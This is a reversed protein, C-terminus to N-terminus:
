SDYWLVNEIDTIVGNDYTIEAGEYGIYESWDVVTDRGVIIYPKYEEGEKYKEVGNKTYYIIIVKNRYMKAYDEKCYETPLKSWDDPTIIDNENYKNVYRYPEYKAREEESLGEWVDKMIIDREHTKNVYQYVDYSKQSYGGKLQNYAEVDIIISSDDKNVYVEEYLKKEDKTLTNWQKDTLIKEGQPAISTVKYLNGEKDYWTPLYLPETMFKYYNVVTNRDDITYDGEGNKTYHITGNKDISTVKCLNGDEDYWADDIDDLILIFSDHNFDVVIDGVEKVYEDKEEGNKTYHIIVYKNRYKKDYKAREEESELKEWQEKSIIISSDTKNVYM